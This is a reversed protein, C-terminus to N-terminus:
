STCYDLIYLLHFTFHSKSSVHCLVLPLFPLIRWYDLLVVVARQDSSYKSLMGSGTGILWVSMAYSSDPWITLCLLWSAGLAGSCSWQWHLHQSCVCLTVGDNDWRGFTALATVWRAVLVLWWCWDGVGAVLVPWWCQGGALINLINGISGSGAKGIQPM